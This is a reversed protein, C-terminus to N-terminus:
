YVAIAPCGDISYIILDDSFSDVDRDDIVELFVSCDPDNAQCLELASKCLSTVNESLDSSKSIGADLEDGLGDFWIQIYYKNSGVYNIRHEIQAFMDELLNINIYEATEETGAFTLTIQETKYVNYDDGYESKEVISGKLYEGKEGIVKKVNDCQNSSHMSIILEYDGSVLGDNENAPFRFLESSEGVGNKVTVKADNSIVFDDRCLYLTLEAEDPLNTEVKFKVKGNDLIIPEANIYVDIMQNETPPETPAETTVVTTVEATTSTTTATTTITTSETTIEPETTEEIQSTESSESISSSSNESKKSDGCATCYLLISLTLLVSILKKM